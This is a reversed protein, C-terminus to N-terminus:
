SMRGGPWQLHGPDCVERFTTAARLGPIIAELRECIQDALQEKAAEYETPSLDKWNDIWDPTFAHVIHYGPPALSPDLVTAISVFIVGRRTLVRPFVQTRLHLHVRIQSVQVPINNGLRTSPRHLVPQSPYVAIRCINQM